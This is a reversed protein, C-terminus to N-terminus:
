EFTQSIQEVKNIIYKKLESNTIEYLPIRVKSSCLNLCSAAYKIGAPNGLALIHSALKDINSQLERAKSFNETELFSQIKHLYYPLINSIVSISGKAGMAAFAINLPDDGSLISFKSSLNRQLRLPRTVDGASDKLALIRELKALKIITEDALDVGCRSPVSYLMIPLSTFNHIQTFYEYLGDQSPKNYFPTVCMIGDVESDQAIKIKAFADATSNASVGAILQFSRTKYTANKKNQEPIKAISSDYNEIIIKKAFYLIEQYEQHSLTAAEGTSGAIVVGSLGAHIQIKLLKELSTFDIDGKENFPTIQATYLGEFFNKQM